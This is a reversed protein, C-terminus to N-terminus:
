YLFDQCLEEASQNQDTEIGFSDHDPFRAECREMVSLEQPSFLKKVNSQDEVFSKAANYRGSRCLGQVQQMYPAMRGGVSMLWDDGLGSVLCQNYEGLQGMIGLGFGGAAGGPMGEEDQLQQLQLLQEQVAENNQLDELMRQMEQQEATLSQASVPQATVTTIILCCVLASLTTKFIPMPKQSLFEIV